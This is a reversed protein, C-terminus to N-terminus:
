GDIYNWTCINDICDFGDTEPCDCSSGWSAWDCAAVLGANAAETLVSADSDLRGVWDRTCGCSFGDIVTGCESAEECGRVATFAEDFSA